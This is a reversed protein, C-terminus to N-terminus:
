SQLPCSPVTPVMSHEVRGGGGGRGGGGVVRTVMIVNM